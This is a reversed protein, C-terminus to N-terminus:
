SCTSAMEPPVIVLLPTSAINSLLIPCYSAKKFLDFPVKIFNVHVEIQFIQNDLKVFGQKLNNVNFIDNFLSFRKVLNLYDLNVETNLIKITCSDSATIYLCFGAVRCIRELM